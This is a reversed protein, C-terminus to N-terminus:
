IKGDMWVDRCLIKKGKYHWINQRWKSHIRACFSYRLYETMFIQNFLVQFHLELHVLLADKMLMNLSILSSFSVLWDARPISGISDTITRQMGKIMLRPGWHKWKGNKTREEQCIHRSRYEIGMTLAGLVGCLLTRANSHSLHTDAVTSDASGFLRIHNSPNPSTYLRHPSRPSPSVKTLAAISHPPPFIIKMWSSLMKVLMFHLSHFCLRFIGKYLTSCKLLWSM